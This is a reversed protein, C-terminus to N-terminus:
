GMGDRAWGYACPLQPRGSMCGSRPKGDACRGGCCENRRKYSAVHKHSPILGRCTGDLCVKCWRVLQPWAMRAPAWRSQMRGLGGDCAVHHHLWGAPPLCRRAARMVVRWAAAQVPLLKRQESPQASRRQWGMRAKGGQVRRPKRGRAVQPYPFMGQFSLFSCSVLGQLTDAESRSLRSSYARGESRGKREQWRM